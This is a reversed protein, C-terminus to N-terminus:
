GHAVMSEFQRKTLYLGGDAGLMWIANDVFAVREGVQSALSEVLTM